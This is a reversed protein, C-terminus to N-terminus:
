RTSVTFPIVFTLNAYADKLSTKDKPAIFIFNKGIQENCGIMTNYSRSYLMARTANPMDPFLVKYFTEDDLRDLQAQTTIGLSSFNTVLLNDYDHTRFIPDNPVPSSWMVNVSGARLVKAEHDTMWELLRFIWSNPRDGYIVIIQPACNEVTPECNGKSPEYKWCPDTWEDRKVLHDGKSETASKSTAEDKKCSSASLMAIAAIPLIIKKM